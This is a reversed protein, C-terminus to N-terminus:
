CPPDQMRSDVGFWLVLVHGRKAHRYMGRGLYVGNGLARLEDYVVRAPRPNSPVDYDIAICPQQDVVSTTLKTRFTFWGRRPLRFRNVGHGDNPGQSTFSKGEWPYLASAHISRIISGVFGRDLKPLALVRGLPHGDIARLDRDEVSLSRFLADLEDSTDRALADLGFTNDVSRVGSREAVASVVSRHNDM